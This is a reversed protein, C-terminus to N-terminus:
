DPAQHAHCTAQQRCIKRPPCPLAPRPTGSVQYPNCQYMDRVKAHTRARQDFGKALSAVARRHKRFASCLLVKNLKTTCVAHRKPFPLASPLLKPPWSDDPARQLGKTQRGGQWCLCLYIFACYIEAFVPAPERTQTEFHCQVSSTASDAPNRLIAVPHCESLEAGWRGRLCEFCAFYHRRNSQQRLEGRRPAGTSRGAWSNCGVQLLGHESPLSSHALVGQKQWHARSEGACSAHCVCGRTCGVNIV